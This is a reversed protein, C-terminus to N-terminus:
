GATSARVASGNAIKAVMVSDWAAGSSRCASAPRTWASRRARGAQLPGRRHRRDTEGEVHRMVEISGRRLRCRDSRRADALEGRKQMEVYRSASAM